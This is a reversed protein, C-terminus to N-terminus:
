PRHPGHHEVGVPHDGVRRPDVGGGPLGGEVHAQALMRGLVGRTPPREVGLGVIQPVHVALGAEVAGSGEQDRAAQPQRFRGDRLDGRVLLSQEGLPEPVASDVDIRTRHPKQPRQAAVADREGRGGRGPVGAFEEGM